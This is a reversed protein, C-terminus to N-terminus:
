GKLELDEDLIDGEAVINTPGTLMINRATGGSLELTVILDGGPMSVTVDRGSVLRRLALATVTAGCGTGCALTFDEVGREFTVASVHDTAVVSCMTVNAGKPFGNFHRLEECLSRLEETPIHKWGDKIFVAHPLGPSGLEIYSCEYERNGAKATRYLEVVTPDALRVTYVRESLRRGTVIGSDTEITLVDNKSFGKEYGYRSICRAGNGCMEGRSGDSNYFVMKLDGGYQPREVIMLGDAGLSLRRQCLRAAIDGYKERPMGGATNDIIIFDNGAGHIKTFHM